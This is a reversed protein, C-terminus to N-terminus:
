APEVLLHQRQQLLALAEEVDPTGTVLGRLGRQADVRPGAVVPEAHVVAVQARGEREPHRRSFGHQRVQGLSVIGVRAPSLHGLMVPETREVDHRGGRRNCRLKQGSEAEPHGDLAPLLVGEDAGGAALARRRLAIEMLRQVPGRADLCRHKKEYLVVFKRNGYRHLVLGGAARGVLERGAIFAETPPADVARVEELDSRDDPRGHTVQAGSVARHAEYGVHDSQERVGGGVVVGLITRGLLEGFVLLDIRDGAHLHREDLRANEILLGDIADVPFDTRFDVIRRLPRRLLAVGGRLTRAPM